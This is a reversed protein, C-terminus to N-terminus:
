TGKRRRSGRRKGRGCFIGALDKEEVEAAKLARGACFVFSLLRVIAVRLVLLPWTM